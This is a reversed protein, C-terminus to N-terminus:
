KLYNNRHNIENNVAWLIDQRHNLFLIGSCTGRPTEHDHRHHGPSTLWFCPRCYYRGWLLILNGVNKVSLDHVKLFNEICGDYTYKLHPHLVSYFINLSPTARATSKGERRWGGAVRAWWPSAAPPRSADWGWKSGPSDNSTKLLRKKKPPPRGYKGGGERSPPPPHHARTM